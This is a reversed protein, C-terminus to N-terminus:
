LAAEVQRIVSEMGNRVGALVFKTFETAILAATGPWMWWSDQKVHDSFVPAPIIEVDPMRFSFELLSRPMHYASTVLRISRIGHEGAWVATERANDATDVANGVDIRAELGVGGAKTSELLQRVDIGRYVGSVFLRAARGRELLDLGEALRGTGGTLVVIADTQRTDTNVANPLQEVYWVVGGGWAGGLVLGAALAAVVTTRIPQRRRQLRM